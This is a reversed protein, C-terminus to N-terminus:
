FDFKKLKYTICYSQIFKEKIKYAMVNCSKENSINIGITNGINILTKSGIGFTMKRNKTGTIPKRGKSPSLIYFKDGNESFMGSIPLKEDVRIIYCKITDLM